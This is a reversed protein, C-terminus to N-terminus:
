GRKEQARKERARKERAERAKAELVAVEEPTPATGGLNAPHWWQGVGDDPYERQAKDLLEQMRARLETEDAPEFPAGIEITIPVHRQTLNRPTGKGLLRQTGWLAMPILPVGAARALRIAGSKVTNVVYSRGTTGEPFIGVVEGSRLAALAKEYSEKGASRDVSIHKMGRMLPGAIKNRFIEEKAMFRVLRKAPHAGYGALIFDLYSIHNVALVAGGTTPVHEAGRIDIRLDLARFLTKALAIVPPYVLDAM